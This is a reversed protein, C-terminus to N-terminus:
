TFKIEDARGCFSFYKITEVTTGTDRLKKNDSLNEWHSKWFIFSQKKIHPKIDSASVAKRDSKTRSNHSDSIFVAM